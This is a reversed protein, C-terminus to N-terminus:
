FLFLFILFFNKHDYLSVGNLLDLKSNLFVRAPKVCKHKYLLLGLISQLQRKTAFEKTLWEREADTVDCLKDPPISLTGEITDIIVDCSQNAEQRQGHSRIADNPGSPYSIVGTSGRSVSGSLTM